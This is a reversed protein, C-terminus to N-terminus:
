YPAKEISIIDFGNVMWGDWIEQPSKLGGKFKREKERWRDKWWAVALSSNETEIKGSSRKRISTYTLGFFKSKRTVIYIGTELDKLMELDPKRHKGIGLSQNPDQGRKFNLNEFVTKAKM